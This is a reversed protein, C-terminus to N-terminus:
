TRKVIWTAARLLHQIYHRYERWLSVNNANYGSENHVFKSIKKLLNLDKTTISEKNYDGPFNPLVAARIKATYNRKLWEFTHEWSYLTAHQESIFARLEPWDEFIDPGRIASIIEQAMREFEGRTFFFSRLENLAKTPKKKVLLQM